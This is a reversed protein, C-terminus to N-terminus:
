VAGAVTGEGAETVNVAVEMASELLDAEALMVMVETAAMETETLGEDAATGSECDALKLAVSCFSVCFLPTLQDSAPLPQEPALQPVKDLTVAVETM